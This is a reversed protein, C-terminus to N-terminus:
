DLHEFRNEPRAEVDSVKGDSEVPEPSRSVGKGKGKGGAEERRKKFCVVCCDAKGGGKRVLEERLCEGHFAHGCGFVVLREGREEEKMARVHLIRRCVGCQGRGPRVARKRGRELKEQKGHVDRALVRNTAGLVDREYVYSELM